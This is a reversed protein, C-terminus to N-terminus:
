GWFQEGNEPFSKVRQSLHSSFSAFSCSETKEDEGEIKTIREEIETILQEKEKKLRRLCKRQILYVAFLLIILIVAFAFDPRYKLALLGAISLNILLVGEPKLTELIYHTFMALAIVIFMLLLSEIDSDLAGSVLMLPAIFWSLGSCEGLKQNKLELLSKRYATYALSPKIQFYGFAYAPILVTLAWIGWWAVIDGWLKEGSGFYYYPLGFTITRIDEM